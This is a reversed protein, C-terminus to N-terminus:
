FRRELVLLTAFLLFVTVGFFSRVNRSVVDRRRIGFHVVDDDVRFDRFLQPLQVVLQGLNCLQLRHLLLALFKLDVLQVLDLFLVFNQVLQFREM